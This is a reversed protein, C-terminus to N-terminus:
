VKNYEPSIILTRIWLDVATSRHESAVNREGHLPVQRQLGDLM